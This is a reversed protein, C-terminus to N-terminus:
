SAAWSCRRPGSLRGAPHQMHSSILQTGVHMVENFNPVRYQVQATSPRPPTVTPTVPIFPAFQLNTLEDPYVAHSANPPPTTQKPKKKAAKKKSTLQLAPM